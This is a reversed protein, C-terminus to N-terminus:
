PINSPPAILPPIKLGANANQFSQEWSMFEGRDVKFSLQTNITKLAAVTDHQGQEIQGFKDDIWGRAQFAGVLLAILLGVTVTFKTNEGLVSRKKLEPPM